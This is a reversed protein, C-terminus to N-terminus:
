MRLFVMGFAFAGTLLLVIAVPVGTTHWRERGIGAIASFEKRWLFRDVKQHQYISAAIALVGTGILILGATRPADPRLITEGNARANTQIRQFYEAITFGFAVLAIGTRVWAIMTQELAM